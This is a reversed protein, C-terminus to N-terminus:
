AKRDTCLATVSQNAARMNQVSAQIVATVCHQRDNRIVFYLHDIVDRETEIM